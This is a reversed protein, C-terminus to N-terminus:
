DKRGNENWHRLGDMAQKLYQRAGRYNGNRHEVKAKTVWEIIDMKDQLDDRNSGPALSMAMLLTSTIKKASIYNSNQRIDKIEWKRSM